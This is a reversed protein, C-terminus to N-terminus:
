PGSRDGTEKHGRKRRRRILKLEHLMEKTAELRLELEKIYAELREMNWQEVMVLLEQKYHDPSM